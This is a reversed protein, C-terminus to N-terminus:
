QELIDHLDEKSYGLANVADLLGNSSINSPLRLKQALLKRKKQSGKGGSLGLEFMDTKTIKASIDGNDETQREVGSAMVADIILQDDVGEVGLLGAKGPMAKRKEKGKIDPIYAHYVGESPLVSKLHNRIVLGSGDPDTFIIVGRERTLRRIYELKEKDNFIGFGNTTVIVADFIQDLKIKDYKGEVIIAQSLKIM